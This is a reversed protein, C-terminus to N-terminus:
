LLLYCFLIIHSHQLFLYFWGFYSGLLSKFVSSFSSHGPSFSLDLNSCTIFRMMCFSSHVDFSMPKYLIYTSSSPQQVVWMSISVTFLPFM